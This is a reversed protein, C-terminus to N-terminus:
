YGLSFLVRQVKKKTRSDGLLQSIKQSFYFCEFFSVFPKLIPEFELIYHLIIYALKITYFQM